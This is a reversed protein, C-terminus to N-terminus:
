KSNIETESESETETESEINKSYSEAKYTEKNNPLSEENEMASDSYNHAISNINGLTEGSYNEAASEFADFSQEGASKANSISQISNDITTKSNNSKIYGTNVSKIGIMLIFCAAAAGYIIGMTKRKDRKKIPVVNSPLEQREYAEIIYKEDIDSMAKFLDMNTM